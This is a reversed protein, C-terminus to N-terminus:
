WDAVAPIPVTDVALVAASEKIWYPPLASSPLVPQQIVIPNSVMTSPTEICPSGSFRWRIMMTSAVNLPFIVDGKSGSM